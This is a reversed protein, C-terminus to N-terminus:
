FSLIEVGPPLEFESDSINVLQINKYEITMKGQPTTTEMKIPFGKDKWVWMKQTHGEVMWQVVLCSKGDVTETGIIEYDYDLIEETEDVASEPANSFDMKYAMNQEPMYLYMVEEDGDIISISIEGEVESQFKMKEGKLWVKTTMTDQGPATTVMDYKVSGIDQGKALLEALDDGTATTKSPASTSTTKPTATTGAEEGGGGCGIVLLSVIAVMIVLLLGLKKM